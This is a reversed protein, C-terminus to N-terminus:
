CAVQHYLDRRPALRFLAHAVQRWYVELWVAQRDLDPRLALRFLSLALRRRDVQRAAWFRLALQRQALGPSVPARFSFPRPFEVASAM